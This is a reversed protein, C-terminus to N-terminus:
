SSKKGDDKIEWKGLPCKSLPIFVKLPIFCGCVGCTKRPVVFNRCQICTALKEKRDMTM